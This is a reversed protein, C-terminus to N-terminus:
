CPHYLAFAAEREDDRGCVVCGGVCVSVCVCMTWTKTRWQWCVMWPEFNQEAVPVAVEVQGWLWKPVVVVVMVDGLGSFTFQNRCLPVSITGTVNWLFFRFSLNWEITNILVVTRPLFNKRVASRPQLCRPLLVVVSGFLDNPMDMFLVYDLGFFFTLPVHDRLMWSSSSSLPVSLLVTVETPTSSTSSLPKWSPM